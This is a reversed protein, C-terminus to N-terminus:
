KKPSLMVKLKLLGEMLRDHDDDFSTIKKLMAAHEQMVKKHLEALRAHDKGDGKDHADIEEDHHRIHDEHEETHGALEELSAEHLLIRAEIERLTALAKRHEVRWASLQKRWVDHEAHAKDHEKKMQAHESKPDDAGALSAIALIVLGIFCARKATQM